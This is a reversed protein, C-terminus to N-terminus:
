ESDSGGSGPRTRRTATTEAEQAGGQEQQPAGRGRGRGRRRGGRGLHRRDKPNAVLEGFPGSVRVGTALIRPRSPRPM